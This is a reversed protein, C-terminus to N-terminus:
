DTTHQWTRNQAAEPGIERSHSRSSAPPGQKEGAPMETAKKRKKKKGRDSVGKRMNICSGKNIHHRNHTLKKNFQPYSEGDRHVNHINHKNLAKLRPTPAKCMEM